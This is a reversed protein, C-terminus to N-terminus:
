EWLQFHGCCCSLLYQCALRYLMGKAAEMVLLM